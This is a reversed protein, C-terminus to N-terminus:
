LLTESGSVLLSYLRMLLYMLYERVLYLGFLGLSSFFEVQVVAQTCLM